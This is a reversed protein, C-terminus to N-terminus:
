CFKCQKEHFVVDSCCGTKRFASGRPRRADDYVTQSKRQRSEHFFLFFIKRAKQTVCADRCRRFFTLWPQRLNVRWKRMIPACTICPKKMLSGLKKKPISLGHNTTPPPLPFAGFFNMCTPIIYKACSGHGFIFIRAFYFFVFEVQM